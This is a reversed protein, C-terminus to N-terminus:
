NSHRLKKPFNICLNTVERFIQLIAGLNQIDDKILVMFVATDDAYLSTCLIASRARLKHLLGLHTAQELIQSIPNIALVFLIPSLPDGRLGRGHAFLIGISVM